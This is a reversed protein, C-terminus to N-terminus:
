DVRAFEGHLRDAAERYAAAAADISAFSGLHHRKGSLTITAVFSGSKVSRVGKVGLRNDAQVTRNFMNQQHTVERLNSFRNNTGDLDKHDLDSAPWEGTVYLWALRHAYYNRSGVRIHIYPSVTHTLSGAVAGARCRGRSVRWTFIGSEPEYHVLALLEAQSIM